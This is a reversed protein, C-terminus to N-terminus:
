EEVKNLLLTGIVKNDTIEEWTEEKKVEEKYKETCQELLEKFNDGICEINIKRDYAEYRYEYTEPYKLVDFETGISNNAFRCPNAKYYYENMRFYIPKLNKTCRESIEKPFNRDISGKMKVIIKGDKSSADVDRGSCVWWDIIDNESSYSGTLYHDHLKGYVDKYKRGGAQLDEILLNLAYNFDPGEGYGVEKKGIEVSLVRLGGGSRFSHFKGGALIAEEISKFKLKKSM